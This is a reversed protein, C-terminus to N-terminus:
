GGLPNKRRGEAKPVRAAVPQPLRYLRRNYSEAAWLLHALADRELETDQAVPQLQGDRYEFSLPEGKPQHIVVENGVRFANTLGYQMMARGPDGKPVHFLDRGIMPHRSEIGMLHLLTPL